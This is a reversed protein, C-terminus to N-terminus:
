DRELRMRKLDVTHRSERDRVVIGIVDQHGTGAVYHPLAQEFTQTGRNAMEFLSGSSGFRQHM